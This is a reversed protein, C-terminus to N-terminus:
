RRRVLVKLGLAKVSSGLTVWYNTPLKMRFKVHVLLRWSVGMDEGTFTFSKVAERWVIKTVDEQIILLGM